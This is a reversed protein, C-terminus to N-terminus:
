CALHGQRTGAERGSGLTALEDLLATYPDDPTTM